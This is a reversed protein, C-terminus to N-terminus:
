PMEDREPCGSAEVSCECGRFEELAQAVTVMM